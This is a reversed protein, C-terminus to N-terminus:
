VAGTTANAQRPILPCKSDPWLPTVPRRVGACDQAILSTSSAVQRPQYRVERRPAALRPSDEKTRARDPIQM